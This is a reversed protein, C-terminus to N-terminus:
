SQHHALTPEAPSLGVSNSLSVERESVGSARTTAPAIVFVSCLARRSSCFPANASCRLYGAHHAGGARSAREFDALAFRLAAKRFGFFKNCWKALAVDSIVFDHHPPLSADELGHRLPRRPSVTENPRQPCSHFPM